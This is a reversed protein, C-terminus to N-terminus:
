RHLIAVADGVEAFEAFADHAEGLDQLRRAHQDPEDVIRSVTAVHKVTQGVVIVDLGLHLEQSEVALCFHSDSKAVLNDVGHDNIPRPIFNKFLGHDYEDYGVSLDADDAELDKDVDLGACVHHSVRM